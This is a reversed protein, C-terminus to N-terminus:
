TPTVPMLLQLLRSYRPHRAISPRYLLRALLARPLSTRCSSPRAAAPHTVAIMPLWTPVHSATLIAALRPPLMPSPSALAQMAPMLLQLLRSYRHHRAISPHYLRQAHLARLLTTRFLSQAAAPLLTVATTLPSMHAPLATLIEALRHPLM